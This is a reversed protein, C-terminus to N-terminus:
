EAVPISPNMKAVRLCKVLKEIEDEMAKMGSIM